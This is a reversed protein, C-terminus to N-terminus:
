ASRSIIVRVRFGSLWGFWSAGCSFSGKGFNLALSISPFVHFLSATFPLGITMLRHYEPQPGHRLSIGSSDVQFSINGSTMNKEAVKWSAAVVRLIVSCRWNVHVCRTLSFSIIFHISPLPKGSVMTTSLSPM